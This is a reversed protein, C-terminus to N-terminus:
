FKQKLEAYLFQFTLLYQTFNTTYDHHARELIYITLVQNDEKSNRHTVTRPLQINPTTWHGSLSNWQANLTPILNTNTGMTVM